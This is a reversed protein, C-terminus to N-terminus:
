PEATFSPPPLRRRRDVVAATLTIASRRLGGPLPAFAHPATSVSRPRTRANRGLRRRRSPPLRRRRDVVAATLMKRAAAVFGAVAAVRLAAAASAEAVTRPPRLARQRRKAVQAPKNALWGVSLYCDARWCPVSFLQACSARIEQNQTYIVIATRSGDHAMTLWRSGDHAM